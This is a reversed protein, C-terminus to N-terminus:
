EAPSVGLIRLPTEPRVAQCMTTLVKRILVTSDSDSTLVVNLGVSGYPDVHSEAEKVMEELAVTWDKLRVLGNADSFDWIFLRRTLEGNREIHIHIEVRQDFLVQELTLESPVLIRALLEADSDAASVQVLKTQRRTSTARPPASGHNTCSALVAVAFALAVYQVQTM